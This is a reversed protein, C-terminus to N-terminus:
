YGKVLIACPDTFYGWATRMWVRSIVKAAFGAEVSSEDVINNLATSLAKESVVVFDGDNVREGLAETIEYLYNQGPKWYKTTIALARYNAM